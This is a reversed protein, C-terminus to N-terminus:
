LGLLLIVWICLLVKADANIPTMSATAYVRIGAPMRPHARGNAFRTSSLRSEPREDATLIEPSFGM